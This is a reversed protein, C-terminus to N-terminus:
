SLRALARLEAELSTVLAAVDAEPALAEIKAGLQDLDAAVKTTGGADLVALDPRAEAFAAKVRALQDTAGQLQEPVAVKGDKVGIPYEVAILSIGDVAPRVTDQVHQLDRALSPTPQGAVGGFYGAVSGVVLGVILVASIVRLSRKRPSRYLSM